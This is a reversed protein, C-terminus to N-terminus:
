QNNKEFVEIYQHHLQQARKNDPQKKLMAKLPEGLNKYDRLQALRTILYIEPTIDHKDTQKILDEYHKRALKSDKYTGMSRVRIMGQRIKIKSIVEPSNKLISMIFPSLQKTIPPAQDSEFLSATKGTVFEAPGSWTEQLGNSLYVLQLSSNEALFVTTEPIITVFSELPALTTKDKQFFANGNLNTVFSDTSEEMATCLLPFLITIFVTILHKRSITIM